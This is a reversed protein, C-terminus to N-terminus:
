EGGDGEGAPDLKAEVLRAVRSGRLRASSLSATLWPRAARRWGEGGAQLMEVIAPLAAVVLSCHAATM